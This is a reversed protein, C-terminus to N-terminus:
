SQGKQAAPLYVFYQGGCGYCVATNLINEAHAALRTNVEICFNMNM